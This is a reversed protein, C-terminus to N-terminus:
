YKYYTYLKINEEECFKLLENQVFERCERRVEMIKMARDEDFDALELKALELLPHLKNEKM